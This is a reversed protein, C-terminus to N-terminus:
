YFIKLVLRAKLIFLWKGLCIKTPFPMSSLYLIFTTFKTFTIELHFEWLSCAFKVSKSHSFELINWFSCQTPTDCVILHRFCARSIFKVIYTKRTKVWRSVGGYDLGVEGDFVIWLKTKLLDVNTCQRLVFRYSDDM